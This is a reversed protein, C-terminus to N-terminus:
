RVKETPPAATEIVLWPDLREAVTKHSVLVLDYGWAVRWADHRPLDRPDIVVRVEDRLDQIEVADPALWGCWERPGLDRCLLGEETLDPVYPKTEIHLEEGPDLHSRSDLAWHLVLPEERHRHAVVVHPIGAPVVELAIGNPPFHEDRIVHVILEASPRPRFLSGSLVDDFARTM